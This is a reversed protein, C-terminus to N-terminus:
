PRPIKEFLSFFAAQTREEAESESWGRIWALEALVFRLFAPENRRGRM